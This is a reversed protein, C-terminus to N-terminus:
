NVNQPVITSSVSDIRARQLEDTLAEAEDPSSLIYPIIMIMLETRIQEEADTSFLKGLLPLKGLIPVGQQNRSTNSSILGGLLVSGGDRLTVTTSLSRNLITPTDSDGGDESSVAESLEQNIEIDVFGSAHVTPKVDLLVGTKRYSINSIIAADPNDTSQSSRTLVPIENGVDISAEGGSKVMIRPRSRINAKNNKYFANLVARTAGASNLSINMGSSKLGLGERTGISGSLGGIALDTIWEIGTQESDTLSVEALVIEVMVSPAPRDLSKIVPLVQLWDKGSGSYLITNLQDDVAYRGKTNGSQPGGISDASSTVNKPSQSTNSTTNTANYNAVGLSNLINVLHLAQTSQVQYSFLGEEINSHREKELTEAWEIIHRLVADSQAFVVLQGVSDLPLLRIASIGATQRVSYGQASLVKELNNALDTATSLNPRIVRSHMGSMSPKDLLETAALAQEVVKRNGIFILANRSSDEKIELEKKPFMQSLWSRVMPTSVAALPYIYFIPRSSSPVEPLARGSVLLPVEGSSADESFDFVLVKDRIYTTVGYSRLTQTALSYLDKESIAQTVRMTVLDPTNKINPEIIFNLGLQNGFVENIFAGVPMNNFSLRSVNNDSLGPIVVDTAEKAAQEVSLTPAKLVEIGISTPQGSETLTTSADEPLVKPTRLPQSFIKDDNQAMQYAPGKMSACSALSSAILITLLSRNLTHPLRKNNLM